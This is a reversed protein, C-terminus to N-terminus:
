RKVGGMFMNMIVKFLCLVILVAPLIFFNMTQNPVVYEDSLCIYGNYNFYSSSSHTYTKKWEWNILTYTDRTYGNYAYLTDDSQRVVCQYNTPRKFYKM